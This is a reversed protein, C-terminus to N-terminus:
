APRCVFSSAIIPCESDGHGAVEWGCREVLATLFAPQYFCRGGNREPSRDEYDAIGSDLFCTFFLAGSPAVYRRLITFIAEADAPNQHTIVSFMCVVDFANEPIPLSTDAGLRRGRPNYLPHFADLFHFEFRRDRVKRRLFEIMARANDIGVYRGMPYGTNLIAQSFRVGCGFDLVAQDAYSELGLSQRMRELLWRGSEEPPMLKTVTASNRNFAEPVVLRRAGGFGFRLWPLFMAM